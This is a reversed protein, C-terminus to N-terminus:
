RLYTIDWHNGEDAYVNGASSRWQAAGDGRTGIRSFTRTIYGTVCGSRAVDVKYGNAHSYTGAAHGAETGGTVTVACRSARRLDIVRTISLQRIQDFSTCRPNSRTSCRGSSSWTVGAARLQSEASSQSIRSASGGSPSGGELASKTRPGVIGDAVLGRRGQYSRVADRTRPGFDGDVTVSYGARQLLGQLRIVCGSDNQGQRILVPCASSLLSSVSTPAAAVATTAAFTVGGLALVAALAVAVRRTTRTSPMSM